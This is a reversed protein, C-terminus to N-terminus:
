RRCHSSNLAYLADYLSDYLYDHISDYLSDYISYRSIFEL